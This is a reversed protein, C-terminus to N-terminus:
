EWTFRAKRHQRRDMKVMSILPRATLSLLLHGGYKKIATVASSTLGSFIRTFYQHLVICHVTKILNWTNRTLQISLVFPSGVIHAPSLPLLCAWGKLPCLM